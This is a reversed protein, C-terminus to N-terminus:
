DQVYTVYGTLEANAPISGGGVTAQITVGSKSEILFSKDAEAGSGSGQSSAGWLGEGASGVNLGDVFADADADVATGVPKSYAQWGIDLTRLPSTGFATRHMFCEDLLVRVNGAPLRVLEATSGVPGSAAGQTFTFRMIRKVGKWDTTPIGIPPQAELNQIQTSKEQTM